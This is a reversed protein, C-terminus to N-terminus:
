EERREALEDRLAYLIPLGRHDKPRNATEKSRIIDDLSAVKVRIGDVDYVVANSVLDEYGDSAAPKFSIDFDGFRTVLNVMAARGLFHRDAAFPVGEPEAYTRIRADMERLAAALRDLNEPDPDPCIDADNTNVPAGHLVGALGGILVYRVEHEDLVRVITEPQLPEPM